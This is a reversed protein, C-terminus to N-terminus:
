LGAPIEVVQKEIELLELLFEGCEFTRDSGFIGLLSCYVALSALLFANKKIFLGLTESIDSYLSNMDFAFYAILLFQLFIFAGFWRAQDVTICFAPIFLLFAAQMFWFLNRGKQDKSKLNRKWLKYGFIFLPLLFIISLIFGVILKNLNSLVYLNIHDSINAYYIFWVFKRNLEMNPHYIVAEDLTIYMRSFLIISLFTASVIIGLITYCFFLKKDFGKAWIDYIFLAVFFSMYTAVFIHHTLVDCVMLIAVLIFYVIRNRNRKYFLFSFLLCSLYLFFDLRGFNPYKLLFMISAPCITYLTVMYISSLYSNWSKAKMKKILINCCYSYLGCGIVATIYVIKLVRAPNMIDLISTVVSAVLMRGGFGTHYNLGFSCLCDDDLEEQPHSIMFIVLLGFITFGYYNSQFFEKIRSM